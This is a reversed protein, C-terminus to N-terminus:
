KQPPLDFVQQKAEDTEEKAAKLKRVVEGQAKIKDQLIVREESSLSAMKSINNTVKAGVGTNYCLRADDPFFIPPLSKIELAVNSWQM